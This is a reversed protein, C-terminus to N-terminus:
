KEPREKERRKAASFRVAGTENHFSPGCFDGFQHFGDVTIREQNSFLSGVLTM